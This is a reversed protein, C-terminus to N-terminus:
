SQLPMGLLAGDQYGKPDLEWRVIAKYAKILMKLVSLRMIEEKPYISLLSLKMKLLFPNGRLNM